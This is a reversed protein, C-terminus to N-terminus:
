WGDLNSLDATYYTVRHYALGASSAEADTFSSVPSAWGPAMQTSASSPPSIADGKLCISLGSHPPQHRIM